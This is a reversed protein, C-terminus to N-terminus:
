RPVEHARLAHRFSAQRCCMSCLRAKPWGGTALRRTRSSIAAHSAELPTARTSTASRGTM